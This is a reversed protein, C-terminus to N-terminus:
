LVQQNVVNTANGSLFAEINGAIGAMLRKRAALTAWALHPTIFLNPAGLLPNDPKIPEESVTDIVAGAILGQALAAALDIENVLGGRAANIFFASNKMKSLLAMDVFRYNDETLPCHISVFDAEEFLTDLPSQEFNEYGPPKGPYPDHALVHMGFAYAIEGV